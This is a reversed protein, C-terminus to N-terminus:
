FLGAISARHRRLEYLLAGVNINPKVFIALLNEPTVASVIVLGSAFEVVGTAFEGRAAATGLRGCAAVV